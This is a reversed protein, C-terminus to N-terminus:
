LDNLNSAIYNLLKQTNKKKSLTAIFFDQSGTKKQYMFLTTKNKKDFRLVQHKLNFILCETTDLVSKKQVERLSNSVFLDIDNTYIPMWKLYFFKSKFSFNSEPKCNPLKKVPIIQKEFKFISITDPRTNKVPWDIETTATQAKLHCLSFLVFLLINIKNM